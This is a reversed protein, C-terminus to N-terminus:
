IIELVIPAQKIKLIRFDMTSFKPIGGGEYFKVVQGNEYHVEVWPNKADYNFKCTKGQPIHYKESLIGVPQNWLSHLGPFLITAQETSVMSPIRATAPTTTQAPTSTEKKAVEPEPAYPKILRWQVFHSQAPEEFRGDIERVVEVTSEQGKKKVKTNVLAMRDGKNFLVADGEKIETIAIYVRPNMNAEVSMAAVDITDASATMTAQSYRELAPVIPIYERAFILVVLLAFVSSPLVKGMKKNIFM